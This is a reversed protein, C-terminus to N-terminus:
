DQLSVKSPDQSHDTLEAYNPCTRLSELIGIGHDLAAFEFGQGSAKFAAVGSNPTGSHEHINSVLEGLAAAFQAPEV